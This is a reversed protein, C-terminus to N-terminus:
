TSVLMDDFHEGLAQYASKARGKQLYNLIRKHHKIAEHECSDYSSSYIQSYKHYERISDYATILVSNRCALVLSEHFLIDYKLFELLETLSKEMKKVIRELTIIEIKTIRKSSIEM